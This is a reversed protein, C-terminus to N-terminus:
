KNCMNIGVGPHGISFNEPYQFFRCNKKEELNLLCSLGTKVSEVSQVVKESLPLTTISCSLGIFAKLVLHM